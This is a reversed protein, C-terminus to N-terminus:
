LTPLTPIDNNKFSVPVGPMLKLTINTLSGNTVDKTYTVDDILLTAYFDLKEIEVRACRNKFIPFKTNTVIKVSLANKNINYFEQKAKKGADANNEISSENLIRRKNTKINSDSYSGKINKNKDYDGGYVIVEKKIDNSLTIQCEKIKIGNPSNSFTYQPTSSSLPKTCYLKKENVEYYIILNREESLREIVSYESEGPSVTIKDFKTNDSCYYQIGYKPLVKGMYDSLGMSNYTAPDADNDILIGVKDRGTLKIDNSGVTYELDIDDILGEAGLIGNFYFEIRDGAAILNSAQNRPNGTTIEFGDSAIDLSGELKYSKIVEIHYQGGTKNSYLIVYHEAM